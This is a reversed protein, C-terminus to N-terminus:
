IEKSERFKNKILDYILLITISITSSILDTMTDKIAARGMFERAVQTDLNMISDMLYELIEWVSGVTMAFLFAFLCILTHNNKLSKKDKLIILIIEKGINYAIIGSTFHLVIDWWYFKDYFNCLTGLFLAMYIFIIISIKANDSLNIKFIKNLFYDYFSLFFCAVVNEIDSSDKNIIKIVVIICLIIRLLIELIKNLKRKDM